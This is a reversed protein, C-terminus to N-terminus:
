ELWSTFGALTVQDPRPMGQPPMMGGRLKRVVKEWTEREWPQPAASLHALDMTDLMLGGVKARENHCTVCYTTILARKSALNDPQQQVPVPSAGRATAVLVSLGGLLVCVRRM